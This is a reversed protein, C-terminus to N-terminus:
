EIIYKVFELACPLSMQKNKTHTYHYQLIYKAQLKSKATNIRKLTELTGIFDYQNYGDAFM